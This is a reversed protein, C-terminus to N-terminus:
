NTMAPPLVFGTTDASEGHIAVSGAVPTPAEIKGSLSRNVHHAEPKRGSGVDGPGTKRRPAAIFSQVKRPPAFQMPVRRGRKLTPAAEDPGVRSTRSTIIM